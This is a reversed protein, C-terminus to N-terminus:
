RHPKREVVVCGNHRAVLEDAGIEEHGASVVFCTASTRVQEYTDPAIQFRDTCRLRGCECFVEVVEASGAGLASLRHKNVDRRLAQHGRSITGNTVCTM